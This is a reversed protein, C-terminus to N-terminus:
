GSFHRLCSRGRQGSDGRVQGLAHTRRPDADPVSQAHAVTANDATSVVPSIKEAQPDHLVISSCPIVFLM